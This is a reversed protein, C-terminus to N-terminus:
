KMKELDIDAYIWDALLIPHKKYGIVHKHMVMNRARAMSMHYAGYYELLRAM